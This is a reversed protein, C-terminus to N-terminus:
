FSLSVKLSASAATRRWSQVSSVKDVESAFVSVICIGQGTYSRM